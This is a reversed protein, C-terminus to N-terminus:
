CLKRESEPKESVAMVESKKTVTEKLKRANNAVGLKAVMRALEHRDYQPLIVM